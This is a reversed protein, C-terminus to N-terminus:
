LVSLRLKTIRHGYAILDEAAVALQANEATDQNGSMRAANWKEVPRSIILEKTKM